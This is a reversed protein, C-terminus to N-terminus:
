VGEMDDIADVCAYLSPERGYRSDNGDEASEFDQHWFAWDMAPSLSYYDLEIHWPGYRYRHVCPHPEVENGEADLGILKNFSM